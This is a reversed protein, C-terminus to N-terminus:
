LLGQRRLDQYTKKNVVNGISDEFEEQLLLSLSLQLLLKYIGTVLLLEVVLLSVCVCICM